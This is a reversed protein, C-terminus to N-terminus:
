LIVAFFQAYSHIHFSHTRTFIANELLIVQTTVPHFDPHTQSVQIDPHGQFDLHVQHEQIERNVQHGRTAQTPPILLPGQFPLYERDNPSALLEKIFYIIIM